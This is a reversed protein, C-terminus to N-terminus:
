RETEKTPYFTSQTSIDTLAPINWLPVARLPAPYCILILFTYPM